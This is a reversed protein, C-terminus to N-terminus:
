KDEETNPISRKTTSTPRLSPYTRSTIREPISVHDPLTPCTEPRGFATTVPLVGAWYRLEDRDQLSTDPPGTRVKVSAEDLSLALVATAAEEKKNPQRSGQWSGPALHETLVELGHLREDRDHLFRANGHIVACRYNMSHEFASRAYVIADLHTVTFCVPVGAQMARLTNAGVSGHLFITNGERGYATPLVHVSGAVVVGLHGVYGADLVTYLQNRDYLSRERTRTATSRLTPSLLQDHTM